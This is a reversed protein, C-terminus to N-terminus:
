WMGFAKAIEENDADFDDPVVFKGKAIGIKVARPRERCDSMKVIPKGNETIVIQREKGDELVGLLESFKEKAQALTVNM